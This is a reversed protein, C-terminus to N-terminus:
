CNNAGDSQIKELPQRQTEYHADLMTIQDGKLRNLEATHIANCNASPHMCVKVPIKCESWDTFSFSTFLWLAAFAVRFQKVTPNGYFYDEMNQQFTHPLDLAQGLQFTPSQDVNAAHHQLMNKIAVHRNPGVGFSEREGKAKLCHWHHGGRERDGEDQHNQQQSLRRHALCPVALAVPLHQPSWWAVDCISWPVVRDIPVALPKDFTYHALINDQTCSFQHHFLYSAALLSGTLWVSIDKYRGAGLLLWRMTRFKVKM